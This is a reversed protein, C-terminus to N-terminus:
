SNDLRFAAKKFSVASSSAVEDTTTGRINHYDKIFLKASYAKSGTKASTESLEVLPKTFIYRGDNPNIPYLCRNYFVVEEMRGSFEQSGTDSSNGLFIKNNNGNVNSKFLWSTQSVGSADAIICEGTQDELKGNVFLKVNGSTLNGDFTIMINTPTEGDCVLKSTSYLTTASDTDWYLQVFVTRDTLLKVFIRQSSGILCNTQSLTGDIDADPIIHMNISMEDTVAYGTSALPDASGTGIEIAPTNTTDNRLCMGTLGEIDYFPGTSSTSDVATTMGQIQDIPAVAKAGDIGDENMPYHLVAGSYQNNVEDPSVMIFGYWLDTDKCEWTFDINYPNDENPFMKYNTITPLSDEYEALMYPKNTGLETDINLKFDASGSTKLLLPVTDSSKHEDVEMLSGLDIEQYTNPVELLNINLEGCHGGKQTGTNYDGFSYDKLSIMSSNDPIFTDISWANTYKGDNYKSENYTAGYTGVEFLQVVNDYQKSPLYKTTGSTDDQWGHAGGINLVEVILWYRKPSILYDRFNDRTFGHGGNFTIENGTKSIVQLTDGTVGTPASHPDNYKYCIYQEDKKCNFISPSDVLITTENIVKVIRSSAFICERKEPMAIRTVDVNDGHEVATTGHQARRVTLTAKTYDGDGDDDAIVDILMIEDGIKIYDNVVFLKGDTVKFETAGALVVADAANDTKTSTADERYGFRFKMLGKQSFYDVNGVGDNGSGNAEVSFENAATDL